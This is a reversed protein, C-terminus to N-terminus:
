AEQYIGHWSCMAHSLRFPRSTHLNKCASRVAQFTTQSLISCCIAHLILRSPQLNRQNSRFSQLVALPRVPDDLFQLNQSGGIVVLSPKTSFSVAIHEGVGVFYYTPGACCM